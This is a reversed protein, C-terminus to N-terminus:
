LYAELATGTLVTFRFFELRLSSRFASAFRYYGEQAATVNNLAEINERRSPPAQYALLPEANALLSCHTAGRRWSIRVQRCRQFCRLPRSFNRCKM